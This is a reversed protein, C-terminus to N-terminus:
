KLHSASFDQAPESGAAVQCAHCHTDHGSIVVHRGPGVQDHLFREEDVSQHSHKRPEASTCTFHAIQSDYVELNWDGDRRASTQSVEFSRALSCPVLRAGNRM